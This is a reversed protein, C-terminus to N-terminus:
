SFFDSEKVSCDNQLTVVSQFCVKVAFGSVGVVVEEVGRCVGDLAYLAYGIALEQAYAANATVDEIKISVHFGHAEVEEIPAVWQFEEFVCCNFSSTGISM